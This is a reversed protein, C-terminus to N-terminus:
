LNWLHHGLKVATESIRVQLAAWTNDSSEWEDFRPFLLAMDRSRSDFINRITDVDKHTGNHINFSRLQGVVHSDFILWVSKGEAKIDVMVVYDSLSWNSRDLNTSTALLRDLALVFEPLKLAKHELKQRSAATTNYEQYEFGFLTGYSWWYPGPLTITGDTPSNPAADTASRPTDFVHAPFELNPDASVALRHVLNDVRGRNHDSHGSGDGESVPARSLSQTPASPSDHHAPQLLPLPM